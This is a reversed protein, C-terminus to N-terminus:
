GCPRGCGPRRTRPSTALFSRRRLYPRVHGRFTIEAVLAGILYGLLADFLPFDFPEPPETGAAAAYALPLIVGVAAGFLRLRRTRVIYSRVFSENGPTLRLGVASAWPAPEWRGLGGALALLIVAVVVAGVLLEFIGATM